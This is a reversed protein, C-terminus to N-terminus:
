SWRIRAQRKEINVWVSAHEFDRTYAWGNKIADGKPKGLPKDFEPYWSFAGHNARYGWSYYFYAYEGAAVLFCALSYTIQERSLKELEEYPKEMMENDLWTFEPWGKVIVIKGMKGAQQIAEIDNATVEKSKGQLATFHELMAADAYKYYRFGMDSWLKKRGRLGNYLILQDDGIKKRLMKYTAMMGEELANQKQEGWVKIRAPRNMALQPMADVFVGDINETNVIDAAVDTWWKRLAANSHDYRKNGRVRVFNGKLDKLAWEPHRDFTNEVAPRYMGGYDIFANWYFIVKISPNAKKLRAADHLTGAETSGKTNIGHGKELVVLPYHDAVFQIEDDTLVDQSKGFHGIVPVTDWSFSPYGADGGGPSSVLSTAYSSLVPPLMLPTGGIALQKLFDKRSTM